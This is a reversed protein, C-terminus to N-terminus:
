ASNAALAADGYQDLTAKLNAGFPVKGLFVAAEAGRRRVLGNVRAGNSIVWRSFQAAADTVHGGNLLTLLTSSGFATAGENYTFSILAAEQYETLVVNVLDRVRNQTNQLERALLVDAQDQTIAPTAPTVPEGNLSVCGWGITWVDARDAAGHYATLSCGEWHEVIKQAFDLAHNPLDAAPLAVPAPPAAVTMPATAAGGDEAEIPVEVAASREGGDAAAGGSPPWTIELAFSDGNDIIKYTAGMAKAAEGRALVDERTFPPEAFSQTTTVGNTGSM